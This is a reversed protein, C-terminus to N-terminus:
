IMNVMFTTHLRVTIIINKNMLKRESGEILSIWLFLSFPQLRAAIEVEADTSIGSNPKKLSHLCCHPETQFCGFKLEKSFLLSRDFRQILLLNISKFYASLQSYISHMWDAKLQRAIRRAKMESLDRGQFRFQYRLESQRGTQRM